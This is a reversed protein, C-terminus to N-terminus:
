DSECGDVDSMGGVCYVERWEFKRLEAPLQNASELRALDLVGDVGKGPQRSTCLCAAPNLRRLLQSGIQGLGGVVVSEETRMKPPHTFLPAKSSLWRRCTAIAIPSCRICTRGRYALQIGAFAPISSWAISPRSSTFCCHPRRGCTSATRLARR